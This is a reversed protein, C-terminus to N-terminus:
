NRLMAMKTMMCGGKGTMWPRLPWPQHPSAAGPDDLLSHYSISPSGLDTITHHLHFAVDLNSASLIETM